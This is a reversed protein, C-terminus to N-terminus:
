FYWENNKRSRISRSDRKTQTLRLQFANNIRSVTKSRINNVKEQKRRLLFTTRRLSPSTTNRQPSHWPLYIHPLQATVPKRTEPSKPFLYKCKQRRRAGSSIKLYKLICKIAGPDWPLSMDLCISIQFAARYKELRNSLIMAVAEWCLSDMTTALQIINIFNGKTNSWIKNNRM